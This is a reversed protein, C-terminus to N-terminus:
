KRQVSVASFTRLVMALPPLCPWIHSNKRFIVSQTMVPLVLFLHSDTDAM